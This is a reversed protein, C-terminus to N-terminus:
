KEYDYVDDDENVNDDVRQSMEELMETNTYDLFHLHWQKLPNISIINNSRGPELKNNDGTRDTIVFAPLRISSTDVIHFTDEMDGFRALRTVPGQRRQHNPLSPKRQKAITEHKVSHVLVATEMNVPTFLPRPHDTPNCQKFTISKLDLFMLLQGELPEDYGDWRIYAWDFWNGNKMYDPCCRYVISPDDICRHETFCDITDIRVNPDGANYGEYKTYISQLILMPYSFSKKKVKKRDM